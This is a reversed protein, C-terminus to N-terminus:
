RGKKVYNENERISVMDPSSVLKKVEEVFVKQEDATFETLQLLYDREGERGWTKIVHAPMKPHKEIFNKIKEESVLDIGAGKSIFTIILRYKVPQEIALNQTGPTIVKAKRKPLTSEMKVMKRDPIMKEVADVFAYQEDETLEALGFYVQKEGEKGKTIVNSGPKKPHDKAFSEIKQYTDNDIGAGKSIFDLKLRYMVRGSKTKKTKSRTTSQANCVSFGLLALLLFCVIKKM